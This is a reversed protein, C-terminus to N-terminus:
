GRPSRDGNDNTEGRDKIKTQNIANSLHRRGIENQEGSLPPLQAGSPSRRSGSFRFQCYCLRNADAVQRSKKREGTFRDGNLV